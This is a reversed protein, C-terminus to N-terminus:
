ISYFFFYLNLRCELLIRSKHTESYMISTLILLFFPFLITVFYHPLISFSLFSHTPKCLFCWIRRHKFQLKYKTKRRMGGIKVLDKCEKLDILFLSDNRLVQKSSQFVCTGQLEEERLKYRKCLLASSDECIDAFCLEIINANSYDNM